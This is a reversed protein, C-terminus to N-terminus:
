IQDRPSRKPIQIKLMVFHLQTLLHTLMRLWQVMEGTRQDLSENIPSPQNQNDVQCFKYDGRPDVVTCLQLSNGLNPYM